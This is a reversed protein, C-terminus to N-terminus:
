SLKNFADIILKPIDEIKNEGPQINEIVEEFVGLISKSDTFGKVWELDEIGRKGLYVQEFVYISFQGIATVIIGSIIGNLLNVNSKKSDNPVYKQVLAKIGSSTMGIQQISNIFEESGDIKNINYIRSLGRIMASQIPILALENVGKNIEIAGTTVGVTVAIGNLSHAFVRNRKLNYKGIDYHGAKLGEPILDTSINILEPIGFSPAYANESVVYTESVVPIVNKLNLKRKQRAFANNVLQINEKREPESYSKTIVVIIPVSKWMRIAKSFSKITEPFIKRSTGDVCFWVLNIQKDENNSKASEKSWKRVSNIARFSKIPSPEFGVTDIISFPLEDNSYIELETTTGQTGWGTKAKEEGLVANILTSKGVGSNGIVLVNAKEM